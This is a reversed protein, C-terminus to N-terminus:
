AAGDARLRNLAALVDARRWRYRGGILTPTPLERRRVMGLVGKRGYSTLRGVSKLDILADGEAAPLTPSAIQSV